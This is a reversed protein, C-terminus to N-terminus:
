AFSSAPEEVYVKDYMTLISEFQEALAKLSVKTKNFTALHEKYYRYSNQIILLDLVKIQSFEPIGSGNKLEQMVHPINDERDGTFEEFQLVLKKFGEFYFIASKNQDREEQYNKINLRISKGWFGYILVLLMLILLITITNFDYIKLQTIIVITLGTLAIFAGIASASHQIGSDERERNTRREAVIPM